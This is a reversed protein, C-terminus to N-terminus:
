YGAADCCPKCYTGSKGWTYPFRGKRKCSRCVWGDVWSQLEWRQQLALRHVLHTDHHSYAVLIYGSSQLLEIIQWEAEHGECSDCHGRTEFQILDPLEKQRHKCHKLMSRLISADHGEADVLLVECGEFKATKVLSSWCLSEVRRPVMRALLGYRTQVWDALQSFEPHEGGVCSMNRLFQLEWELNKRDNRKVKALLDDPSELVHIETSDDKESIAAQVVAINPLKAALNRAAEAHEYVPEVAVGRIRSPARESCAQLLWDV